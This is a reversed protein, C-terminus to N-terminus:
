DQCLCSTSIWAKSLCTIIYYGKKHRWSETQKQADNMLNETSSTRNDLSAFKKCETFTVIQDKRRHDRLYNKGAAKFFIAEWCGPGATSAM